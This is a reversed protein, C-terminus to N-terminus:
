SFNVFVYNVFTMLFTGLLKWKKASRDSISWSVNDDGVNHAMVNTQIHLFPLSLFFLFQLCRPAIFLGVSGFSTTSHFWIMIHASVILLAGFLDNKYM